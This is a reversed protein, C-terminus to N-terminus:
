WANMKQRRQDREMLQRTQKERPEQADKQNKKRAQWLEADHQWAGNRFVTVHGPNTPPPADQTAFAPTLWVGPELPSARAWTTSLYEDTVPNIHHVVPRAAKHEPELWWQTIPKDTPDTVWVVPLLPVTMPMTESGGAPDTTRTISSGTGILGENRSDTNSDAAWGGGIVIGHSHSEFMDEYYKFQLANGSRSAGYDTGRFYRARADINYFTASDPTLNNALAVNDGIVGYYKSYAEKSLQAGDLVVAGDPPTTGAWMDCVGVVGSGTARSVSKDVYEKSVIM